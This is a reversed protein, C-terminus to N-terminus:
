KDGRGEGSAANRRNLRVRGQRVVGDNGTNSSWMLCVCRVGKVCLYLTKENVTTKNM